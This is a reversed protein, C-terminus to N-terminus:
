ESVPRISLGLFRGDVSVGLGKSGFVLLWAGDPGGAMLSSTWYYGTDPNDDYSWSSAPLFISNNNKLYTVLWGDHGNVSRWEWKYSANERTAILEEMEEKTPMRWKGGLRMHAADDEPELVTKNDVVGFSSDNIYKTFTKGTGDSFKYTEWSYEAKAKTEGWAFYDGFGDPSYAGLNCSGWKVSLGLDVGTQTNDGDTTKKCAVFSMVVILMAYFTKKM